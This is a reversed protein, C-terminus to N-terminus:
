PHRVGRLNGRGKHPLDLTPPFTAPSAPLGGARDGGWWSFPPCADFAQRSAGLSSMTRNGVSVAAESPPARVLDRDRDALRDVACDLGAVGRRSTRWPVGRRGRIDCAGHHGGALDVASKVEATSLRGSLRNVRDQLTGSGRKAM